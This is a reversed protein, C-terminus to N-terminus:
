ITKKRLGRVHEVQNRLKDLDPSRALRAAQLPMTKTKPKLMRAQVVFNKVDEITRKQREKCMKICRRKQELEKQMKIKITALKDQLEATSMQCLLGLNPCENPDFEKVQHLSKLQHLTKIEEILKVKKALEEKQREFADRLLKKIEIKFQHVQNKKEEKLKRESEKANCEIDQGKKVLIRMKEQEAERWQEIKRLFNEREQMFQKFREKNCERLKKKALIAEEFTLLGKLHKREIDEVFKQQEMQRSNEELERYKELTSGGKLIAEINKIEKEQEKICVNAERLVMTINGKIEVNPKIPPARKAKFLPQAVEECIVTEKPKCYNKSLAKAQTLLKQARIKNKEFEGALKKEINDAIYVSRPIERAQFTQFETPTNLPVTPVAIKRQLVNIHGPITPPKKVYKNAKKGSLYENVKKFLEAKSLVPNIINKVVYEDEFFKCGALATIILNNEECFYDLLKQKFVCRADKFVSFLDEVNGGESAFIILFIVM